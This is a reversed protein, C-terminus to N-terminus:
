CKRNHQVVWHGANLMDNFNNIISKENEVDEKTKKQFLKTTM